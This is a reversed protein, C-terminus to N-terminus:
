VSPSKVERWRVVAWWLSLMVLGEIVIAIWGVVVARQVTAVIVLALELAVMVLCLVAYPGYQHAARHIRSSPEVNRHWFANLVEQKEQRSCSRYVDLKM